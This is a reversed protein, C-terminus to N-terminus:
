LLKYAVIHTSRTLSLDEALVTLDDLARLQQVMEGVGDNM